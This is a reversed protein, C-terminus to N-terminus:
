AEKIGAVARKHQSCMWAMVTMVVVGVLDMVINPFVLLITAAFLILREPISLNKFFWGQIVAGLTITALSWSIVVEVVAPLSYGVLTIQPAYAFAFPMLYLYLSLVLAKVGTKMPDGGAIGAGAFAAVCVPPTVNSTMCLWFCILHAYVPVMGIRILAPAALIALVIYSATTPLGMGVVTAILAILVISAFLNGQSISLIAASFKVGLGSLSISGMIIGLTGATAGVVISDRGATACTEFFKKVTFRNEKRVMGCVIIIVSAWFAMLPISYGQMILVTCGVLVFIFYWGKKLVDSLQLQEEPKLGTLGHRKAHFYAQATLSLYYLIAPAAAMIIITSYPVETLTALIFAGAGMVPPMFQGGTAASATVAGAFDKDYGAKKMMPICFAGVSMVCAIPSGSIMGFLCCTWIAILASGGAIKGTLAKSIDVFFEGGGSKQLFAGFVMFPMIYSAFTSTISGYIGGTTCAIYEIIRVVSFGKHGFIGPLHPGFYLILLFIVGLGALVNGLTRRTIETSALIVVGGCILDWRNPNGVRTAAYTSYTVLWYLISSCTVVALCCDMALAAKSAVLKKSPAYLLFVLAFTFFLFFALSSETPKWRLGFGSIYFFLLGFMASLVFVVKSLREDLTRKM